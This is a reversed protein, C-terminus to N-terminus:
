HYYEYTATECYEESGNDAFPEKPEDYYSVVQFCSRSKVTRATWNGYKDYSIYRYNIETLTTGGDDHQRIQIRYPHPHSKHYLYYTDEQWVYQEWQRRSLRHRDDFTYIRHDLASVSEIDYRETRMRPQPFELKWYIGYEDPFSLTDVPYGGIFEGTIEGDPAIRLTDGRSTIRTKVPGYINRCQAGTYLHREQGYASLNIILYLILALIRM